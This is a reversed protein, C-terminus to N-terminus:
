IRSLQSAMIKSRGAVFGLAAGLTLYFLFDPITVGSIAENITHCNPCAVQDGIENVAIPYGCAACSAITKEM